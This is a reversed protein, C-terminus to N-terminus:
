DEDNTLLISELKELYHKAKQIDKLGGKGEGTANFRALYAIASALYYGTAQEKTLWDDFVIWPQVAMSKYHDGGVQKDNPHQFAGVDEFAENAEEVEEETCGHEESVAEEVPQLEEPKMTAWTQYVPITGTRGLRDSAEVVPSIVPKRLETIGPLAKIFRPNNLSFTWCNRADSWTYVTEEGVKFYQDRLTVPDLRYHTAEDLSPQSM